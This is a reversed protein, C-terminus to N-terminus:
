QPLQRSYDVKGGLSQYKSFSAQFDQRTATLVADAVRIDRDAAEYRQNVSKLAYSDLTQKDYSAHLKALNAKANDLIAKAQAVRSIKGQVEQDARAIDTMKQWADPDAQAHPATPMAPGEGMNTKVVHAGVLLATVIGFPVLCMLVLNWHEFARLAAIIAPLNFAWKEQRPGEARKLHLHRKFGGPPIAPFTVNQGCTPCNMRQGCYDATYAIHQGCFPCSHKYTDAEGTNSVIKTTKSIV